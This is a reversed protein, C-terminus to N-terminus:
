DAQGNLEKVKDNAWVMMESGGWADYLLSECSKDYPKAAHITERSLYRSLRKIEKPGLPVGKMIAESLERGKPKICGVGMKDQWELARKVNDKAKAPYSNFHLNVIRNQVPLPEQDPSEVEIEQELEIETHDNVWKRKEEVTLVEWVQPDVSEMEPFPNYPVIQIPETSKYGVFHKLMSEYYEILIEQSRKVRQQMLKVAARITNGDGGLSVGESINALISPVKTAITIKKTAQDDTMRHMDANANTPFAEVSPFEEKNDGWFAWLQGVRKAGAFQNTLADDFAKGKSIDNGESDKMGSADNPNGIVKMITPVLFGNELNEDFYVAANKEIRMWRSASYYDPIPYHPDASTRVGMWHIQGKWTKSAAQTVAAVPNFVDYVETDQSRYLATGFYPNYHIKSIIGNDDPQGLRCYGFPVDFMQTIGGAKNYKVITAVGLNHAFIDSQIIHFQQFTQGQLNIKLNELDEGSSFGEGAIFDATTSLCSTATPSERILENLHQPFNNHLGFPIFKGSADVQGSYAFERQILNYVKIFSQSIAEKLAM